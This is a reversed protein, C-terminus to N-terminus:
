GGPYIDGPNGMYKTLTNICCTFICVDIYSFVYIYMCIYIYIYIYIYIMYMYIFISYYVMVEEKLQGNLKQSISSRHLM